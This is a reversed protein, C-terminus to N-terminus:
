NRLHSSPLCFSLPVPLLGLVKPVPTPAPSVRARELIPISNLFIQTKTLPQSAQILRYCLRYFGIVM